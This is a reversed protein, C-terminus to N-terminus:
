EYDSFEAMCHTISKKGSWRWRLYVAKFEDPTLRQVLM